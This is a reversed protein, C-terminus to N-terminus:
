EHISYSQNCDTLSSLNTADKKNNRLFISEEYSIYAVNSWNSFNHNHESNSFKILKHTNAKLYIWRNSLMIGESADEWLGAKAKYDTVQIGGNTLNQKIPSSNCYYIFTTIREPWM